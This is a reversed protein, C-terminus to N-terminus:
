YDNVPYPKLDKLEQWQQLKIDDPPNNRLNVLKLNFKRQLIVIEDSLDELENFGNKFKANNM